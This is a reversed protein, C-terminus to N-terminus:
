TTDRLRGRFVVHWAASEAESRMLWGDYEMIAAREEYLDRRADDTWDAYRGAGDDRDESFNANREFCATGSTGYARWPANQCKQRKTEPANGHKKLATIWRNM